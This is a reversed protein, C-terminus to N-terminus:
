FPKMVNWFEVKKQKNDDMESLSYTALIKVDKFNDATNLIVEPIGLTQPSIGFLVLKSCVFYAKLSEFTAGAHYHMNLIALDRLELGKAKTIKLLTEVHISNLTKHTPDNVLLLIYKNNEGLYNFSEPESIIEPKEVILQPTEEKKIVPVLEPVLVTPEKFNYLDDNMLFHIAVPHDTILESMNMQSLVPLM